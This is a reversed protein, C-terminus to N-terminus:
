VGTEMKVGKMFKIYNPEQGVIIGRMNLKGIFGERIPNGESDLYQEEAM